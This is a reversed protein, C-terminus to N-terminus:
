SRHEWEDRIEKQWEVSDVDSKLWGLLQRVRVWDPQKKSEPLITLLLKGSKPLKDPELPIIKGEVLEAEITTLM